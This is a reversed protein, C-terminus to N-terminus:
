LEEGHPQQTMTWPMISIRRRGKALIVRSSDRFKMENSGLGLRRGLDDDDEVEWVAKLINKRTFTMDVASLVACTVVYWIM